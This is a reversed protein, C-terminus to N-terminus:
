GEFRLAITYATIVVLTLLLGAPKGFRPLRLHFATSALYPL